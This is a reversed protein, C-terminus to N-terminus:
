PAVPESRTERLIRDARRQLEAMHHHAVGYTIEHFGVVRAILISVVRDDMSMIPSGSAGGATPISVLMYHELDGGRDDAGSQTFLGYAVFRIAHPYGAYWVRTGFGDSLPGVRAVRVAPGSVVLLCADLGIKDDEIMYVVSGIRKEGLADTVYLLGQQGCVHGATAVVSTKGDTAIFWGTGQAEGGIYDLKVTHRYFPTHGCAVLLAILAVLLTRM